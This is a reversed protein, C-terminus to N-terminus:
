GQSSFREVRLVCQIDDGSVGARVEWDASEGAKVTLDDAQALGETEQGAMFSVYVRYTQEADTPNTVTGASVWDSGDAECRSQEADEAAGEYGKVSGPTDSVDVPDASLSASASPVPQADDTDNSSTCAAMGLGLLPILVWSLTRKKM